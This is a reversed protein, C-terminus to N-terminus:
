AAPQSLFLFEIESGAFSIHVHQMIKLPGMGLGRYKLTFNQFQFASYKYTFGFM